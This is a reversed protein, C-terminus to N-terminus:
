APVGDVPLRLTFVTGEGPTSSVEISGGHKKMVACALPLGQGSGEGVSKTTFFPEFISSLIDDPIGTGDDAFGIVVTSGDLASSVRIEGRGGKEKIADAANVLLNLFVQNLDSLHCLVEPLEALELVVDAVYKVENRAITLTTRIAENLDAHTPAESGKYSFSKMARVLTAVRETGELSQRVAAPIEETLYDVDAKVEAAQARRSREAWQLEGLEPAMCERYTQLLELMDRYADALFRTNDGVFQIPTNIEHALGASLRGLSELKQAHRLELEAHRVETMDRFTIVSGPREDGADLPAISCTVEFTSGDKRTFADNVAQASKGTLRIRQLTCESEPRRTGGAPAAHMVSHAREGLVEEEPWGLMGSAARNMSTLRGDGDVTFLGDAMDNMIVSRFAQARQREVVDILMIGVGILTEDLHVPHCSVLWSRPGDSGGQAPTTVVTGVTGEASTRTRHRNAEIQRWIEPFVEVVPRGLQQSPAVAGLAALTDNVRILRSETDLFGLGWPANAELSELM